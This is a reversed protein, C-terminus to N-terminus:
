KFSSLLNSAAIDVIGNESGGLAVEDPTEVEVKSLKFTLQYETRTLEVFSESSAREMGPAPSGCSPVTM